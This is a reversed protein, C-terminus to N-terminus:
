FPRCESVAVGGQSAGRARTRRFLYNHGRHALSQQSRTHGAMKSQLQQRNDNCDRQGTGNNSKPQRIKAEVWVWVWVWQQPLKTARNTARNTQQCRRMAAGTLVVNNDKANNNSALAQRQGSFWM